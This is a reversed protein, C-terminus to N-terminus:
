LNEFSIAREDLEKKRRAYWPMFFERILADHYNFPKYFPTIFVRETFNAFGFSAEFFANMESMNDDVINAYLPGKVGKENILITLVREVGIPKQAIEGAYYIGNKLMALGTYSRTITGLGSLKAFDVGAVLFRRETEAAMARTRATLGVFLAGRLSEQTIFERAHEMFIEEKMAAIQQPVQMQGLYDAFASMTAFDFNSLRRDYAYAEELVRTQETAPFHALPYFPRILSFDFDVFYIKKGDVQYETCMSLEHFSNISLPIKLWGHCLSSAVEDDEDVDCMSFLNLSLFVLLVSFLKNM